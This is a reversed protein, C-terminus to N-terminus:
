GLYVQGMPQPVTWFGVVAHRVVRPAPTLSSKRWLQLRQINEKIVYPMVQSQRVRVGSRYVM